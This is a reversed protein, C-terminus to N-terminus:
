FYLELSSVSCKPQYISILPSSAVEYSEIGPWSLTLGNVTELHVVRWHCSQYTTRAFLSSQQLSSVSRTGHDPVAKSRLTLRLAGHFRPLGTVGPDVWISVQGSRRWAPVVASAASLARWSPLWRPSWASRATRPRCYDM